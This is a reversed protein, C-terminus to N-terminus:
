VNLDGGVPKRCIKVGEELGYMLIQRERKNMHPFMVIANDIVTRLDDYAEREIESKEGDYFRSYVDMIKEKDIVM